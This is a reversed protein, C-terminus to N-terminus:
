KAWGIWLGPDGSISQLCEECKKKADNEDTAIENLLYPDNKSNEEYVVAKWRGQDAEAFAKLTRGDITGKWKAV